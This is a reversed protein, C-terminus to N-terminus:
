YDSNVGRAIDLQGNIILSKTRDDVSPLDIDEADIYSSLRISPVNYLNLQSTDNNKRPENVRRLKKM